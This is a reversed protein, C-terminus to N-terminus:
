GVPFAGEFYVWILAGVCKVLLHEIVIYGPLAAKCYKQINERVIFGLREMVALVVGLFYGRVFECM